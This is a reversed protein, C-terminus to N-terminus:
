EAAEAAPEEAKKPAEVLGEAVLIAIKADGNVYKKDAGMVAYRGSRKKMVAYENTKKVVKMPVV